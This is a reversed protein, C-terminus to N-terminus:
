CNFKVTSADSDCCNLSLANYTKTGCCQRDGGLTKFPFRNPYEGCCSKESPGAGPKTVCEVTPDFGSSHKNADIISGGELIFFALISSVFTGEIICSRIACNNGTNAIDCAESLTVSAGGVASEYTQDWPICTTGEAEADRMACEYNEHLVRCLHDLGDVPNGKGRGSDDGFYCWCGMENMSNLVSTLAGFAREDCLPNKMREFIPMKSCAQMLDFRAPTEGNAVYVTFLAVILVKIMM